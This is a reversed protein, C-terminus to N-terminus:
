AVQGRPRQCGAEAHQPYTGRVPHSFRGASVRLMSVNAFGSILDTIASRQELGAPFAWTV